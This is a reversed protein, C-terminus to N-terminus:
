QNMWILGVQQSDSQVWAPEPTQTFFGPHQTIHCCYYCYYDQCFPWSLISSSLQPTEERVGPYRQGEGTDPEEHEEGRYDPQQWVSPLVKSKGKLGLWRRSASLPEHQRKSRAPNFANQTLFDVQHAVSYTHSSQSGDDGVVVPLFRRTWCTGMKCLLNPQTPNVTPTLPPCMSLSILDGPPPPTPKATTIAIFTISLFSLSGYCGPWIWQVMCGPLILAPILGGIVSHWWQLLSLASRVDLFSGGSGTKDIFCYSTGVLMAWIQVRVNSHPVCLLALTFLAKILFILLKSLWSDTSYVLCKYTARCTKGKRRLTAPFNGQVIISKKIILIRSCVMNVSGKHLLHGKVRLLHSAFILLSEKKIYVITCFPYFHFNYAPSFHLSFATPRNHATPKQLAPFVRASEIKTRLEISPISAHLKWAKCTSPPTWVKWMNVM